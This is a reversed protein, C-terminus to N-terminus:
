ADQYMSYTSVHRLDPLRELFTLMIPYAQSGVAHVLHGIKLIVNLVVNLISPRIALDAHMLVSLPTASYPKVMVSFKAALAAAIKRIIM